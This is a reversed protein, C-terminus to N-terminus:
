YINIQSIIEMHMFELFSSGIFDKHAKILDTVAIDEMAEIVQDKTWRSTKNVQDNYMFLQDVISDEDLDELITKIANELEWDKIFLYYLM